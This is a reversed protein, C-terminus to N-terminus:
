KGAGFKSIAAKDMELQKAEEAQRRAPETKQWELYVKQCGEFGPHWGGPYGFHRNCVKVAKDLESGDGPPTMQPVQAFAPMALVIIPILSRFMFLEM